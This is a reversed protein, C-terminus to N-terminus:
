LLKFLSTDSRNKIENLRAFQREDFHSHLASWDSNEVGFANVLELGPCRGPHSPM